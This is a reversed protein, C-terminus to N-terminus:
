VATPFLEAMLWAGPARPNYTAASPAMAYEYNAQGPLESSSQRNIYEDLGTKWRDLIKMKEPDNIIFLDLQRRILVASSTGAKNAFDNMAPSAYGKNLIMAAENTLWRSDMVQATTYKKAQQATASGSNSQTFQVPPATTPQASNSRNPGGGSNSNNGGQTSAPLKQSQTIAAEAAKDWAPSYRVNTRAKQMLDQATTIDLQPANPNKSWWDNVLKTYENQYLARAQNIFSQAAAKERDAMTGAAIQQAPDFGQGLNLNFKSGFEARMKAAFMPDSMDERVWGTLTSARDLGVPQKGFRTAAKEIKARNQELLERYREPDNASQQAALAQATQYLNERGAETRLMEPTINNLKAEGAAVEELTPANATDNFEQQSETLTQGLNTTDQYGMNQAQGSWWVYADQWEATRPIKNGPGKPNYWLQRLNIQYSAQQRQNFENISKYAGATNDTLEQPYAQEYTARDRWAIPKGNTPNVKPGVRLKNVIEAYMAPDKARFYALNKLTQEWFKDRGEGTLLDLQQEIKLGLVQAGLDGYTLTQGTAQDVFTTGPTIGNGLGGNAQVGEFFQTIVQGGLVAASRNLEADYLKGQSETFKDWGKNIAPTVYYTSELEDGTLGFRKLVSQTVRTKEIALQESGPAIGLYKPDRLEARLESAVSQAALQAIARNRGIARWPNTESALQGAVPDVNSLRNITAASRGAALERNEQLKLQSKVQENKLADYYGAEINGIAYQRMGRDVSKQLQASFPKLSDALQQLQNFGTVSSTGAQQLTAIQSVQPLKSLQAAQPINNQQPQLFAGLPQAAPRIQGQFLREAM